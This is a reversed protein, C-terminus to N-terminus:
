GCRATGWRAPRRGRGAGCALSHYQCHRGQADPAEAGCHVLRATCVSSGWAQSSGGPQLEGRPPGSVPCHHARSSAGSAGPQQTRGRSSPKPPQVSPRQLQWLARQAPAPLQPDPMKWAVAKSLMCPRAAADAEAESASVLITMHRVFYRSGQSSVMWHNLCPALCFSLVCCGGNCQRASCQGVQSRRPQLWDLQWRGFAPPLV